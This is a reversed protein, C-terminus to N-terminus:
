HAVAQGNRLLPGDYVSRSPGALQLTRPAGYVHLSRAPAHFARRSVGAMSPRIDRRRTSYWRKAFALREAATSGPFPADFEFRLTTLLLESLCPPNLEPLTPNPNPPHPKLALTLTRTLVLKLPVYPLGFLFFLPLTWAWHIKVYFDRYSAVWLCALVRVRTRCTIAKLKIPVVSSLLSPNM